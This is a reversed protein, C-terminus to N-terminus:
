LGRPFSFAVLKLCVLCVPCRGWPILLTTIESSKASFNPNDKQIWSSSWLCLGLAAEMSWLCILVFSSYNWCFYVDEM